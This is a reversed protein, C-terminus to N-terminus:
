VKPHIHSPNKSTKIRYSVFAALACFGLDFLWVPPYSETMDFLTGALWASFFAGSQHCVFVVGFLLCGCVVPPVAASVAYKQSEVAAPKNRNATKQRSTPEKRNATEQRSTPEKRSFSTM